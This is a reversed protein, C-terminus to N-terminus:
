KPRTSELCSCGHPPPLRATGASSCARRRHQRHGGKRASSDVYRTATGALYRGMARSTCMSTCMGGGGGGGGGRRVCASGRRLRAGPTIPTLMRASLVPHMFNPSATASGMGVHPTYTTIHETRCASDGSVSIILDDERESSCDRHRSGGSFCCRLLRVIPLSCTDAM